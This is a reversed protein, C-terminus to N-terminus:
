TGCFTKYTKDFGKPITQFEDHKASYNYTQSMLSLLKDFEQKNGNEANMLASEVLHNRPIYIPNNKRMIKYSNKENQIRKIWQKKWLSFENSKFLSDKCSKKFTLAAFTNTYDAKYFEMLKLLKNILLKDEEIPNIIGLKEYMMQYWKYSYEIPFQNLINQALEIAKDKNNEIFPLITGALLSLNWYAIKHQNGFAYRSNKDISSFVTKPNYSNMFACPGYDITEGTISMNDTNMVGHIFGIRIWGIILDIQKKMIIKLLELYPSENNSIEPYHRDIVYHIFKQFEEKKCFHRGYEFTGVRIHSSAIRTLIGGNNVSERYVKEGTELVALGRSTPINLYHMSESIIYERLMSSLTARGDGNRSFSTKGSGKLQIDYLKNNLDKQEGLLIARGDGLMTFHGFQHGAYAQAIPESNEPLKNGSFYSAILSPNHNLFELNIKKALNKNFYIIKPNQVLTPKIKEYFCDPLTLYTNQLNWKENNSKM